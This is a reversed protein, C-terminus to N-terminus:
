LIGALQDGTSEVTACNAVRSLETTLETRVEAAIEEVTPVDPAETLSRTAYEWVDQATAGGASSTLERTAYEWVDQATIGAGATLTRTVYEWVQQATLGTTPIAALQTDLNASALGIASRVDAATLFNATGLTADVPVGAVVSSAAPVYCTGTLAGLAYSTGNRVDTIAPVGNAVSYEAPIYTRQVLSQDRVYLLSSATFDFRIHGGYPMCGTASVYGAGKAYTFGAGSSGFLAPTASTSSGYAAGNLTMIGTSGNFAGYASAGSGGTAIGTISVTGTSANAIAASISGGTVSGSITVTGTSSNIVGYSSTSAGSGGTVNGTVSLTGSGSMIAGYGASAVGGIVNGAIYATGPASLTCRVCQTSTAGGYVNAALTVGASLDFLGGSTAGGTADNRVEACTANVNVTVTFSNSMAVDSITPIFSASATGLPTDSWVDSADWNGNKRAFRNAM